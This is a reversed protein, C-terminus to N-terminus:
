SVRAVEDRSEQAHRTEWWRSPTLACKYPTMQQIMAPITADSEVKYYTCFIPPTRTNVSSQAAWFWTGCIPQTSLHLNNAPWTWLTKESNENLQLHIHLKPGCPYSCSLCQPRPVQSNRGGTQAGLELKALSHVPLAEDVAPRHVCDMVEPSFRHGWQVSACRLRYTGIVESLQSEAKKALLILSGPSLLM